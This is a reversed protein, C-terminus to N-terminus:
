VSITYPFFFPIARTQKTCHTLMWFRRWTGSFKYGVTSVFGVTQFTTTQYVQRACVCVCYVRTHAYACRSSTKCQYKTAQFAHRRPPPPPVALENGAFLKVTAFRFSNMKNTGKFFLFGAAILSKGNVCYNAICRLGPRKRRLWFTQIDRSMKGPINMQNGM